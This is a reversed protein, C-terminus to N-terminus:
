EGGVLTGSPITVKAVKYFWAYWKGSSFQIDFYRYEWGDKM